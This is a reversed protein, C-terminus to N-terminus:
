DSLESGPYAKSPLNLRLFNIATQALPSYPGDGDGSKNVGRVKVWITSDNTIGYWNPVTIDPEAFCPIYESGSGFDDNPMTVFLKFYLKSIGELYRAYV